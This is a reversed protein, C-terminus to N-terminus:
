HASVLNVNQLLKRDGVRRDFFCFQDAVVTVGDTVGDVPADRDQARDFTFTSGVIDSLKASETSSDTWEFFCKGKDQVLILHWDWLVKKEEDSVKAVFLSYHKDRAAM